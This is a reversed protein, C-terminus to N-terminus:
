LSQTYKMEEAIQMQSAIGGELVIRRISRPAIDGELEVDLLGAVAKIAAGVHSVSLGIKILNRILARTSDSVVGKNKLHFRERRKGEKQKAKEVAKLRSTRARGVKMMLAKNTKQLRTVESAAQNNAENILHVDEVLNTNMAQLELNDEKADILDKELDRRKKEMRVVRRRTNKYDRSLAKSKIVHQNLMSGSHSLQGELTTITGELGSIVRSTHPSVNEKGHRSPVNSKGLTHSHLQQQKSRKKGSSKWINSM